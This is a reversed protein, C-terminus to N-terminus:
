LGPTQKLPDEIEVRLGNNLLAFFVYQSVLSILDIMESEKLESSWKNWAKDRITRHRVMEDTLMLLALERASFLPKLTKAKVAALETDTVGYERAVPVHHKWVYDCNFLVGMRLIILEQERGTFGMMLKSTVWYDIFPGFTGPNHMITGFVNVPSYKGKLGEGPLRDLIKNWDDRMRNMPLPKIRAGKEDNMLQKNESMDTKTKITMGDKGSKSQKEINGPMNQKQEISEGSASLSIGSFFFVLSFLLTTLKQTIRGLNNTKM